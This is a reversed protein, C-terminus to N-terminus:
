SAFDVTIDNPGAKVEKTVGSQAPDQFKPPVTFDVKEMPTGPPLQKPVPPTVYVKYSGVPLGADFKFAGSSDLNAQAASGKETSYFNVVGSTLPAGNFNVKGSVQGQPTSGECGLMFSFCALLAFGGFKRRTLLGLDM